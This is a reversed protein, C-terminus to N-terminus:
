KFDKVVGRCVKLTAHVKRPKPFLTLNQNVLRCAVNWNCQVLVVVIAPCLLYDFQLDRIFVKLITM